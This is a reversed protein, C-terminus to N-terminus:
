PKSDTSDTVASEPSSSVTPNLGRQRRYSVVVWRMVVFGVAAVAAGAVTTGVVFPMLYPRMQTFLGKLTLDDMSLPALEAGGPWLILGLWTCGAYIPVFTWPNNLYAGTFVAVPNMRLGWVVGAAMVTHLGILPSFGIFVGVAFALALRDPSEGMHLMTKLQERIRDIM